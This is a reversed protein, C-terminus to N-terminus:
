RSLQALQTREEAPVPRLGSSQHSFIQSGASAEQISKCLDQGTDHNPILVQAQIMLNPAPESLWKQITAGLGRNGLSYSALRIPQPKESFSGLGKSLNKRVRSNMSHITLIVFLRIPSYKCHQDYAQM